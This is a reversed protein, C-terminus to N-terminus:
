KVPFTMTLKGSPAVKGYFLQLLIEEKKDQSGHYFLM